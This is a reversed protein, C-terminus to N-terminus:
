NLQPLQDFREKSWVKRALLSYLDILDNIKGEEKVMIIKLSKEAITPVHM